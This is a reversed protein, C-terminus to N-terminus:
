CRAGRSKFESPSELVKGAGPWGSPVYPQAASRNRNKHPSVVVQLRVPRQAEGELYSFNLTQNARFNNRTACHELNDSM